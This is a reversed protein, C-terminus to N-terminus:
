INAKVYIYNRDYDILGEAKMKALERSLSPRAVNFYNALDQKSKIKVTQSKNDIIEQELFMLIKDKLNPQLLVKNHFNLKLAKESLQKLYYNRFEHNESILKNLKDKPLFAIEADTLCTLYGPYYPTESNILFDGFISDETLKALTREEGELTFHLLKISGKILYGIRDCIDNEYYIITGKPYNCKISFTQRIVENDFLNM